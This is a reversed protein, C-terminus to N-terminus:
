VLTMGLWAGTLGVAVSSIVYVMGRLYQRRELYQIFEYGFTSFTTYAGCFGTGVALWLWDPILEGGHLSWIIGLLVSGSINVTWTAWPFGSSLKASMLKGIYYRLVTGVMGGLGILWIM